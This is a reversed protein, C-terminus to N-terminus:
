SCGAPIKGEMIGVLFDELDKLKGKKEIKEFAKILKKNGTAEIRKHLEEKNEFLAKLEDATQVKLIKLLEPSKIHTKRKIYKSFYKYGTNYDAMLATAFFAVSAFISIVRKMDKEKGLATLTVIVARTM